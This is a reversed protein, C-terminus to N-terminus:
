PAVVRIDDFRVRADESYLGIAGDVYPRQGDTFTALLAGDAWVRMTTGVHRIRVSYWSGIPFPQSGTALFRQAGPYAPDEKGLEWGNPKLTLYYFHFNDTFHWLAWATEWPNPVPTRLQEVTRMRLTMDIDGFTELSTVLAAHTEEPSTSAAPAQTLVRSGDVTIGTTGYGDFDVRWDGQITGQPWPATAFSDFSEDLLGTPAPAPSLIPSPSATPGAKRRNTKGAADAPANASAVVLMLAPAALAAALGAITRRRLVHAFSSPM